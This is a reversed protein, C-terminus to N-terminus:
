IRISRASRLTAISRSAHFARLVEIHTHTVRFIILYSGFIINRYIKSKTQLHRCEPHSLYRSPLHNLESGIDSLFADVAAMGFTEVGYNFIDIIDENFATSQIVERIKKEM